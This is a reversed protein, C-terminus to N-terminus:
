FIGVTVCKVSFLCTPSNKAKGNPHCLSTINSNLMPVLVEMPRPQRTDFLFRYPCVSIFWMQNHTLTSRRYVSLWVKSALIVAPRFDERLQSSCACVSPFYCVHQLFKFYSILKSWNSGLGSGKKKKKLIPWPLKNKDTNEDEASILSMQKWWGFSICCPGTTRSFWCCPSMKSIKWNTQIIMATVFPSVTPLLTQIRTFGLGIQETKQCTKPWVSFYLWHKVEKQFLSSQKVTTELLIKPYPQWLEININSTLRIDALFRIDSYITIWKLDRM